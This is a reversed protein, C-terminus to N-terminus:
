QFEKQTKNDRSLCCCDYWRDYVKKKVPRKSTFLDVSDNQKKRKKNEFILKILLSVFFPFITLYTLSV